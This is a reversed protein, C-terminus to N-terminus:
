FHCFCCSFKLYRNNGAASDAVPFTQQPGKGHPGLPDEHSGCEHGGLLARNMRGYFLADELGTREPHTCELVIAGVVFVGIRTPNIQKKM